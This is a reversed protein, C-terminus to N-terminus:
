NSAPAMGPRKKRRVGAVEGGTGAETEVEDHRPSRLGATGKITHLFEGPRIHLGVHCEFEVRTFIM